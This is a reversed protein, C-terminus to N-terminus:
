WHRDGSFNYTRVGNMALHVRYLVVCLYAVNVKRPQYLYTLSLHRSLALKIFMIVVKLYLQFFLTIKFFSIIKFM